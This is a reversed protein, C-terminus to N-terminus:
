VTKGLTPIKKPASKDNKMWTGLRRGIAFKDMEEFRMKKDGKGHESWYAFFEKLSDVPYKEPYEKAYDWLDNKFDLILSMWSFRELTM